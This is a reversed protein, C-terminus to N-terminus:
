EIYGNNRFYAEVVSRTESGDIRNFYSTLAGEKYFVTTPTGGFSVTTKLEDYEDDSLQTLDIMFVEVQYNEIFGSMTIEFNACASCESSGIVLPFTEGNEIKKTLQEYSVQTYGSLKTSCGSILFSLFILCYFLIRKM